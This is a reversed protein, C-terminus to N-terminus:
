MFAEIQEDTLGPYLKKIRARLQDATELPVFVPLDEPKKEIKQQLRNKVEKVQQV